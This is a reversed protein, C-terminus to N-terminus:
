SANVQHQKSDTKIPQNQRICKLRHTLSEKEAVQRIMFMQKTVNNDRVYQREIYGAAIAEIILNRFAVVAIRDKVRQYLGRATFRSGKKFGLLYVLLWSCRISVNTDAVIYFIDEPCYYDVLQQNVLLDENSMMNNCAGKHTGPLMSIQQQPSKNIYSCIM